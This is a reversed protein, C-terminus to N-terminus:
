SPPNEATDLLSEIEAKIANIEDVAERLSYVDAGLRRRSEFEIIGKVAGTLDGYYGVLRWANKNPDKSNVKHQAAFNNEDTVIRYNENIEIM